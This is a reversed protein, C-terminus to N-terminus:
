HPKTQDASLTFYGRMSYTKNTGNYTLKGTYSGNDAITLTLQGAGGFNVVYSGAVPFKEVVFTLEYWASVNSGVKSRVKITYTGPKATITGTIEGTSKNLKLGKPLKQAEYTLGSAAPDTNKISGTFIGTGLTSSFSGSVMGPPLPPNIIIVQEVKNSSIKGIKSWYEVKYANSKATVTGYVQGTNKDIKLGKPLGKAYYTIDGAM